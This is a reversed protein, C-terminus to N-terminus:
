DEVVYVDEGPLHMFYQERAFRELSDKNQLKLIDHQAEELLQRYQDRQQELQHIQRARKMRKIIAQDGAFLMIVAFVAITLFYKNGIYKYIDKGIKLWDIKQMTLHANSYISQLPVFFKHSYFIGCM